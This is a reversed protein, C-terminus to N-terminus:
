YAPRFRRPPASATAHAIPRTKPPPRSHRCYRLLRSRRFSVGGAVRELRPVLDVEALERLAVRDFDGEVGLGIIPSANSDFKFITPADAEDPLRGRIRDVRTRVEDAAENLETGWAFSLRVTGSGESATSNIQELGPVAALSQELPRIILEEIEVPGVGGYGVRVTLSPYSVDPLLDVPLRTLSISGLLVIIASVMFMTVPRHIAFRPVSM